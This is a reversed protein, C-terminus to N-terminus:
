KGSLGLEGCISEWVLNKRKNEKYGGHQRNWLIPHVQINSIMAQWIDNPQERDNDNSCSSEVDNEDINSEINSESFREEENANCIIEQNAQQTNHPQEHQQMLLQQQRLMFINLRTMDMQSMQSTGEM